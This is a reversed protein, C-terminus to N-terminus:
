GAEACTFSTLEGSTSIAVWHVRSAAPVACLLEILDTQRSTQGLVSFFPVENRNDSPKTTDFPCTTSPQAAFSNSANFGVPSVTLNLPSTTSVSLSRASSRSACLIAPPRSSPFSEASGIPVTTVVQANGSM